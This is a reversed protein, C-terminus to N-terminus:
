YVTGTWSGGWGCGESIWLTVQPPMLTFAPAGTETDQNPRLAAPFRHTTAPCRPIGVQTTLM